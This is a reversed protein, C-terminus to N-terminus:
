ILEWTYGGAKKREGKACKLITTSYKLKCFIAADKATDFIIGNEICRVKVASPNLGGTIAKVRAKTMKDIHEKSLKKGYFTNKDGVRLKARASIAKRLNPNDQYKKKNSLSIKMRAEESFKLGKCGDGGKTLNYGKSYTCEKEIHFIERDSLHDMDNCLELIEKKFNEIGYKKIAKKIAVGSGFYSDNLSSSVHKGVYAKGNLTNTIKYVYFLKMIFRTADMSNSYDM